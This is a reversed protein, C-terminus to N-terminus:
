YSKLFTAKNNIIRFIWTRRYTCGAPCDGRGISFSVTAQNNNRELMINNGDFCGGNNEAITVCPLKKFAEIIPKLNYFNDTNVSLWPFKPYGYSTEVSNFSYSTLINDLKINGTPINGKVLNKIESADPNVKMVISNLSHCKLANISYYHFVTDREPIKLDYILQFVTMIKQLEETDLIPTSSNPHNPNALIERVYLEHCDTLYNESLFSDINIQNVNLLDDECSISFLIVVLTIFRKM